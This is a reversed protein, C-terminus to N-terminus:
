YVRTSKGQGVNILRLYSCWVGSHPCETPTCDEFSSTFPVIERGTLALLIIRCVEQEGTADIVSEVDNGVAVMLGKKEGEDAGFNRRSRQWEGQHNDSLALGSRCGSPAIVTEHM